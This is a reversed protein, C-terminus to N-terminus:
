IWAFDTTNKLYRECPWFILGADSRRPFNSKRLPRWLQKDSRSGRVSRVLKYPVVVKYPIIVKKRHTLDGVSIICSLSSENSKSLKYITMPAAIASRVRSYIHTKNQYSCGFVTFVFHFSKFLLRKHLLLVMNQCITLSTWALFLPTPVSWGRRFIYGEGILFQQIQASVHCAQVLIKECRAHTHPPSRLYSVPYSTSSRWGQIIEFM